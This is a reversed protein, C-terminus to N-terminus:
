EDEWVDAAKGELAALFGDDTDTEEDEGLLLKTKETDAKIREIEAKLKQDALELDHFAMKNMGEISSLFADSNAKRVGEEEINERAKNKLWEYENFASERSWLAKNSFQKLLEKYRQLVKTDNFLQSANADVSSEKWNEANQYAKKYAERQSLGSVLGQVFKEQKATLKVVPSVEKLPLCFSM